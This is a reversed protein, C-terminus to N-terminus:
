PVMVWDPTVNNEPTKTLRTANTGDINMIYIEQSGDRRTSFALQSGNPSWVPNSDYESFYTLRKQNSGDADITYIGQKVFAIKKGDPSWSPDNGNLFGSILQKTTKNVIDLVYIGDLTSDNVEGSSIFDFAIKTGDPSWSIKRITGTKSYIEEIANTEINITQITATKYSELTSFVIKKGDPSWDTSKIQTSQNNKILQNASSDGINITYLGYVSGFAIKKGDPSWAPGEKDSPANYIELKKNESGDANMVYLGEHFYDDITELHGSFYVIKGQNNQRSLLSPTNIDDTQRLLQSNGSCGCLFSLLLIPSLIIFYYRM